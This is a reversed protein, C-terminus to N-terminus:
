PPSARPTARWRASPWPTCNARTTPRASLARALHERAAAEAAGAATLAAQATEAAKRKDEVTSARTSSNATSTPSAAGSRWAAHPAPRPTPMPPLATGAGFIATARFSANVPSSCAPSARATPVSSWASRPLAVPCNRRRRSSSPSRSRAKRCRRIPHTSQPAWGACPTNSTSRRTLITASRLASRSRM